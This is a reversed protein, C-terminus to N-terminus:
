KRRANRIKTGNHAINKINYFSIVRISYLNKLIRSLIYFGRKNESNIYINISTIFHKKLLFSIHYALKLVAYNSKMDQRKIKLLGMSIKVISKKENNTIVIFTNRKTTTICINGKQNKNKSKKVM